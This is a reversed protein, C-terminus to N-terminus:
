CKIKEWIKRANAYCLSQAQLYHLIFLTLLARCDTCLQVNDSHVAYAHTYTNVKTLM